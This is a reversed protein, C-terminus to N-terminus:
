RGTRNSSVSPITGLIAGDHEDIADAGREHDGAGLERQGVEVGGFQGPSSEHLKM